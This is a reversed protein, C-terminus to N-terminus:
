KKYFVNRPRKGPSPYPVHAELMSSGAQQFTSANEVVESPPKIIKHKIM